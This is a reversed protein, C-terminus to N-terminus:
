LLHNYLHQLYVFTTFSVITTGVIFLWSFHWPRILLLAFSSDTTYITSTLSKQKVCLFVSIITIVCMNMVVIFCLGSLFYLTWLDAPRLCSHFCICHLPLAPKVQGTDEPRGEGERLQGDVLEIQPFRWGQQLCIRDPTLPTKRPKHLM